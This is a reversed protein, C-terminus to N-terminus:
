GSVSIHFLTEANRTTVAAIHETDVGRIEALKATIFRLYSPENRKGRFPVPTLFPSDTEVLLRDDPVARVTDDLRSKKFTVNGTFSIYFGLALVEEAVDPPRDFCHFQGHLKGDQHERLIALLDATSERNHIIVPLGTAKAIELQRAFIERQKEPPCFDYHYDLGIEGVACAEDSEAARAVEEMGEDGVGAADHPHIGIATFVGPFDSAIRRARHFTEINTSPIIMGGVREEKARAIVEPLDDSFSEWFLHCHTDVLKM